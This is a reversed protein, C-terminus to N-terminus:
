QIDSKKKAMKEALKKQKKKSDHASGFHDPDNDPVVIPTIGRKELKKLTAKTAKKEQILYEIRSPKFAAFIGPFLIARTLESKAKMDKATEEDVDNIHIDRKFAKPHALLIWTEGVKFDKPIAKVRKSIGMEAGEKLFDAPTPYFREGVWMLGAKMNAPPNCVVCTENCNCYSLIVMPNKHKGEFLKEPMVWKWGLGQKIGEGCCPCVTVEMPLRDCSEGFKGTVMYLGGVKRFGCMRAKEVSM